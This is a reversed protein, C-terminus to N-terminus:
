KGNKQDFGRMLKDFLENRRPKHLHEIRSKRERNVLAIIEDILEADINTSYDDSRSLYIKSTSDFCFGIINHTLSLRGLEVVIQEITADFVENISQENLERGNSWMDTDEFVTLAKTEGFDDEPFDGKNGRLYLTCGISTERKLEDILEEKTMKKM